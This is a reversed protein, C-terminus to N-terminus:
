EKTISYFTFSSINFHEMTEKRSYLQAYLRIEEKRTNSMKVPKLEPVKRGRVIRIVDSLSIKFIKATETTTHTQSFQQVKRRLVPSYTMNIECVSMGLKEESCFKELFYRSLNFERMVDSMPKELLANIIKVKEEETKEPYTEKPIIAAKECWKSITAPNLEFIWKAKIVGYEAAFDVVEQMFEDTFQKRTPAYTINAADMWKEIIYVPLKYYRAAIRLTTKAVYDFVEQKFEDTYGIEEFGKSGPIVGANKCIKHVTKRDLDCMRATESITYEKATRLVQNIFEDKYRKKKPTQIFKINRKKAWRRISSGSVKYEREAEKVSTELAYSVIEDKFNEPYKNGKEAIPGHTKPSIELYECYILYIDLCSIGFLEATEQAGLKKEATMISNKLDQSYGKIRKFM